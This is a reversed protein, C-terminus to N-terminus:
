IYHIGNPWNVVDQAWLRCPIRLSGVVLYYEIACHVQVPLTVQIPAVKNLM